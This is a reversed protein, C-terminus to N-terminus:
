NWGVQQITIFTRVINKSSALYGSNENGIFDVRVAFGDGPEMTVTYVLSTSSTFDVPSAATGNSFRSASSQGYM